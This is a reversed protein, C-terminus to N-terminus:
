VYAVATRAAIAQWDAIRGALDNRSFHEEDFASSNGSGVAGHAIANGVHVATVVNLGPIPYAAPRHHYAVGDVISLPLGWLELLYAGVDAHDAGFAAQEAALLPQAQMHVQDLVKQYEEPLNAALLVKGIDHLMGALLVDEMLRRDRTEREVIARAYSATALSHNTLRTLDFHRISPLDLHHFVGASLVLAQILDLGLLSAAQAPDTIRRPLGFFSSNVLQLIKATMSVDSAILSGIRDLSSDPSKLETLLRHYLKPLPPLNALRGMLAQLEPSNLRDKVACSRTITDRLVEPVCPKSLFQHAPGICRFLAENDAQGSLVLRVCAPYQKQVRTLLEAGDMEPMRMDTVIVDFPQAAFLQLAEAGSAAFHMEWHEAQNRLLRRLGALILPDDDVFLVRKKM